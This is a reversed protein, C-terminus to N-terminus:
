EGVAPTVAEVVFTVILALLPFLFLAAIVSRWNSPRRGNTGHMWTAPKAHMALAEKASEM